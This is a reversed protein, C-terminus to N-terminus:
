LEGVYTVGLQSTPLGYLFGCMLVLTLRQECNQSLKM